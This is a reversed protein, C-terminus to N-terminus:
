APALAVRLRAGEALEVAEGEDPGLAAPGAEYGVALTEEAILERFDALAREVLPGEGALRLAIRQEVALGAEKRLSNVRTVVERALGEARLEDDLETDLFVVLRGDTEVDFDARTEVEVLVDEPGIPVAEGDLELRLESGGRLAAVDASSLAAIAAAAAKMRPGLRRGLSKFNAKARLRCLEGDDGALSGWGKVNLEDLVQESAFGGALLELAAPDTARLHLARLPQRVRIGARERLARGMEVVREVLRMSAELEGDVLEELPEPLLAVHVSTGDGRLREWLLEATFPAVPAMLLAVTELAQHLTAHAGLKDALDLNEQTWKRGVHFYCSYVTFRGSGPLELKAALIRHDAVKQGGEEKSPPYLGLFARAFIAVGASASSPHSGASHLWMARWGMRTVWEDAEPIAGQLLSLEQACVVLDQTSALFGKLTTFSNANFTTVTLPAEEDAGGQV